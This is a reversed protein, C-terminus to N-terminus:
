EYKDLFALLIDENVQDVSVIIGQANEIDNLIEQVKHLPLGQCVLYDQAENPDYEMAKLDEWHYAEYSVTNMLVNKFTAVM